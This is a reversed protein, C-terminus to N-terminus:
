VHLNHLIFYQMSNFQIVWTFPTSSHDNILLVQIVLFSLLIRTPPLLVLVVRVQTVLDRYVTWQVVYAWLLLYMQTCKNNYVFIQVGNVTRRVRLPTLVNTHPVSTTTCLYRYVTWQVVYEWLLLYMQTHYVQQRVCIDTCRESYSTRDSSYTCKHVSTTTCVVVLLYVQQVSIDTCQGSCSTRESTYACKNYVHMPVDNVTRCVSLFTLVCVTICMYSYVTWQIVYTWLLLYVSTSVSLQVGNVTRCVNLPTFVNCKNYVYLQLGVGSSYTCKNYVSIQVGNMTRRVILPTHVSTTCLYWPCLLPPAHLCHNTVEYFNSCPYHLMMCIIILRHPKDNHFLLQYYLFLILIIIMRTQIVNRSWTKYRAVFAITTRLKIIIIIIFHM